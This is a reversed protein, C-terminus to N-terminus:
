DSAAEGEEDTRVVRSIIRGDKQRTEIEQEPTVANSETAEAGSLVQIAELLKNTDSSKEVEEKRFTQMYFVFAFALSVGGALRLPLSEFRM